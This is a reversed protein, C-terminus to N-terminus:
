KLPYLPKLVKGGFLNLLVYKMVVIYDVGKKTFFEEFSIDPLGEDLIPSRELVGRL